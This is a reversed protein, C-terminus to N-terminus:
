KEKAPKATKEPQATKAVGDGAAEQLRKSMAEDNADPMVSDDKEVFAGPEGRM